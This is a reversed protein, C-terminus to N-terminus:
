NLTSIQDSFLYYHINRYFRYSVKHERCFSNLQKFSAHTHGYGYWYCQGQNGCSQKEPVIKKSAM